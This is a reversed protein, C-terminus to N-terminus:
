QILRTRKPKKIQPASDASKIPPKVPPATPAPAPPTVDMAPPEPSEDPTDEQPATPEAKPKGNQNRTKVLWGIIIAALVVFAIGFVLNSQFLKSELTKALNNVQAQIQSGAGNHLKDSLKTVGADAVFKSAILVAGALALVVGVRRWGKRKTPAIFIIGVSTLLALAALIFPAKQTFRYVQPAKSATKFYPKAQADKQQNVSTPTLVPQGLFDNSTKIDQAVRAGETQPDINTPRCDVTLSNVPLQLQAMQAASCVPLTKLRTTVAAGVQDALSNKAGSLDINFQPTATKGQLWAYNADIFTEFSTRLLDPTFSQKAAQQVATDNLSVSSDSGGNKNADTQSQDLAASVLHDYIGSQAVLTKVEAPQGFVRNVNLIAVGGVLSIFLLIALFHVFGKRVWIM